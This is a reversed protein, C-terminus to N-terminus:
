GNQITNLQKKLEEVEIKLDEVESRVVDLKGDIAVAYEWTQATAKIAVTVMKGYSIGRLHPRARGITVLEPFLKEISQAVFGIEPTDTPGWGEKWTHRVARSGLVLFKDMDLEFPIINDKVRVDSTAIWDTATGKYTGMDFTFRTTTGTRFFFDTTTLTSDLYLHSGSFYLKYDNGTGCYLEINDNFRYSNATHINTGAFTVAANMAATSVVRFTGNVDLTYGPTDDQIGMRAQSADWFIGNNLSASGLRLDHTTTDGSDYYYISSITASDVRFTLRTDPEITSWIYSDAGVSFGGTAIVTGTVTIGTSTTYLKTAPTANGHRLTVSDTSLYLLASATSTSLGNTIFSLTGGATSCRIYNSTNRSFNIQEGGVSVNYGANEDVIIPQRSRFEKTAETGSPDSLPTTITANPTFGQGEIIEVSGIFYTGLRVYVDVSLSGSDLYEIVTNDGATQNGITYQWASEEGDLNGLVVMGETYNSLASDYSTNGNIKIRVKAGSGALTGLKYWYINNGSTIAIPAISAAGGLDALNVTGAAVSTFTMDTGSVDIYTGAVAVYYRDAAVSNFPQSTDALDLGTGGALIDCYTVHTGTLQAFRFVQGVNYVDIYGTPGVIYKTTGIFQIQETAALRLDDGATVTTIVNANVQWPSAGAVISVGNIQYDGGAAVNVIGDKDIECKWVGANGINLIVAGATTLANRTDLSYAEASASDGAGPDLHMRRVGTIWTSVYNANLTSHSNATTDIARIYGAPSVGTLILSHGASDFILGNDGILESATATWYAVQGTAQTFTGATVDGESAGYSIQGTSSDYYVVDTEAARAPLHGTGGTGFFFDGYTTDRQFYVNGGASIGAGGKITVDGAGGASNTGTFIDINSTFAGDATYIQYSTAAAAFVIGLGSGIYLGQTVNYTLYQEANLEDAVATATVVRDNAQAAVTIGAISAPDIWKLGTTEVDDRALIYGDTGGTLVTPTQDAIASLLGGKSINVFKESYETLTAHVNQTLLLDYQAM